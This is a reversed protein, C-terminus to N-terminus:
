LERFQGRLLGLVLAGPSSELPIKPPEKLARKLLKLDLGTPSYPQYTHVPPPHARRRTPGAGGCGSCIRCLDMKAAVTRVCAFLLYRCFTEGYEKSVTGMKSQVEFHSFYHAKLGRLVSFTPQFPLGREFHCNAHLEFWSSHAAM